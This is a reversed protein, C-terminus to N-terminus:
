NITFIASLTEDCVAGSDSTRAIGTGASFSIAARGTGIATFTLVSVLQDGTVSSGMKALAISITGSGGTNQISNDLNSGSVVSSVFQLKASDYTLDAQIANIPIGYSNERVTVTVTSGNSYTGVTPTLYFYARVNQIPKWANGSRVNVPKAVMSGGVRALKPSSVGSM